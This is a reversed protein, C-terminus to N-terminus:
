VRLTDARWNTVARKIDDNKTLKGDVVQQVLNPLEEDSAFRLAVIQGPPLASAREALAPPLVQRYRLSEELRILRDQVRLSNTRTMATVVIFGAALLLWALHDLDRFRYLQVAAFIFYLLFLPAAFFHFPAHWRTHNAYSQPADAM